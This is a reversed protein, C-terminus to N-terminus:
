APGGECIRQWAVDAETLDMAAAVNLLMGEAFFARLAVPPLGSMESVQAVLGAFETRVFERVVPDDCAAFAHLQLRLLSRDRLLEGYARGLSALVPDYDGLDAPPHPEAEAFTTRIREFMRGVAAIFLQQKSGFLRFLYPQSVGALRAIEETSTGALGGSAFATVAAEIVEARREDAHLRHRVARTHERIAQTHQRIAGTRTASTTSVDRL